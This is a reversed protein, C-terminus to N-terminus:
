AISPLLPFLSVLGKARPPHPAMCSAEDRLPLKLHRSKLTGKTADVSFWIRLSLTVGEEKNRLFALAVCYRGRALEYEM